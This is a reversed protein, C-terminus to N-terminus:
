PKRRYAMSAQVVSGVIVAQVVAKQSKQRAEPSMDAGINALALLVQGPDTFLNSLLEAPNELVTLAEAVDQPLIVGNDLTVMPTEFATDPQSAPVPEVVPAPVPQPTPAPQEQPAPDVPTKSTDEEVPHESPQEAPVQEVPAPEAPQPSPAPDVAPQEVPIPEVVPVPTPEPQPAPQPEVVVPVPQPEVVPVPTPLSEQQPMDSTSTQSEQTASQTEQLTTSTDVVVTPDEQSSPAVVTESNQVVTASDQSPAVTQSESTSPVTVTEQVQPTQTEVTATPIDQPLVGQYYRLSLDSVSTSVFTTYGGGSFGGECFLHAIDGKGAFFQNSNDWGVTSTRQTGDPRACTITVQGTNVANATAMFAFGAWVALTVAAYKSAKRKV